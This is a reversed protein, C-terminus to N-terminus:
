ARGYCTFAKSKQMAGEQACVARGWCGCHRSAGVGLERPRAVHEEDHTLLERRKVWEKGACQVFPLQCRALHRSFIGRQCM